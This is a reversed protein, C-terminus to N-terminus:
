SSLYGSEIEELMQDIDCTPANANEYRRIAAIKEEPSKRSTEQTARRLARRVWEGLSLGMEKAIQQFTRYEKPELLVQLRKSM